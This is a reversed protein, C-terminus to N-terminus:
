MVALSLAACDGIHEGLAAPLIKVYEGCLTEEKIAPLIISDFFERNRAYISGIVIVEPDLIDILVSLGAALKKACTTYVLAAFEDGAYMAAALDKASVNEGLELGKEAALLKALKAIGGGSCYGEFSGKKGYGEPGGDTLRIHGAEGAMDRTGSYLKGDLILGAGMGTGFTLFVANSCGKAAGYKWEAVACANADNQLNVRCGFREAAMGAVPVNDWDPLNPPCMIIGKKSDLPGGCSIGIGALDSKAAGNRDLLTEASAFLEDLVARWGRGVLTPFTIKDVIIDEIGGDATDKGLIAACKTGGIDFGLTFM